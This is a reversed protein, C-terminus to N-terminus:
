IASYQKSGSPVSLHRQSVSRALFGDGNLCHRGHSAAKLNAVHDLQALGNREAGDDALTEGDVADAGM